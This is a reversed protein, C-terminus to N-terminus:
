KGFGGATISISPISVIGAKVDAQLTLIRSASPPQPYVIRNSTCKCRPHLHVSHVHPKGSARRVGIMAGRLWSILM